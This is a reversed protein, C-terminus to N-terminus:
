GAREARVVEALISVAIQEPTEADIEVGIPSHVGELVAPDCGDDLLARRTTDWRRRSGMLGVYRTGCALVDPLLQQDLATNRTVMVVSARGDIGQASILDNLPGTAVHDFAATPVAREPRDDWGVVRYGMWSALEAVAVGVHGLGIVLLTPSPMVPEIYVEVVGGCVGPDGSTPDVLDYSLRRPAGAELAAIAEAIVRSEMEGGGVSGVTSADISVLMKSGPHRPVSGTTAVVTAVAVPERRGRAEALADLVADSGGRAPLPARDVSPTPDDSM